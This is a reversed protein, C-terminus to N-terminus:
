RVDGKGRELGSLQSTEKGPTIIALLDSKKKKKEKKTHKSRFGGRDKDNWAYAMEKKKKTIHASLILM